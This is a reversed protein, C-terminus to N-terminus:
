RGGYIEKGHLLLAPLFCLSVILCFGMELLVVGGLISLAQNRAAVLSGFGFMTTLSCMVMARGTTCLAYGADTRGKGLYRHMLYTGNDIGLGIIM